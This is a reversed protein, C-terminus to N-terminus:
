ISLGFVGDVGAFQSDVFTSCGIFQDWRRPVFGTCYREWERTGGDDGAMGTELRGGYKRHELFSFGRWAPPPHYRNM